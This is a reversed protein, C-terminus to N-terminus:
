SNAVVFGVIFTVFFLVIGLAIWRLAQREGASILRRPEEEETGRRESGLIREREM